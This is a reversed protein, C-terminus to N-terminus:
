ATVFPYATLSDLNEEPPKEAHFPLNVRFTSGEGPQSEVEVHGGHAEVIEKVLALGLGSGGYHRTMSGDIQYFRDLVRDLKDPPIGIGTDRVELIATQHEQRLSVAIEGGAPTFKLANGLLNDLVRHLHLPDGQLVPLNQDLDAHLVLGAERAVVQFDDLMDSVLEVLNLPKRVPKRTEVELIANIDDVLKTLMRMRRALIQMPEQQQPQLEGLEGSELLEVYGRVIALPTRLEHSVNQIFEDKLQALERQQKLARAMEAARREEEAFFRANEVANVCQQALAQIFDIEHPEFSRPEQQWLVIGGIVEQDRIMPVVLIASAGEVAMIQSTIEDATVSIHSVQVPQRAAISEGIAGEGVRVGRANFRRVPEAEIGDAAVLYLRGDARFGIVGSADARSLERAHRAISDFVRALNSVSTVERGVRTITALEDARRRLDANLLAQAVLDGMQSAFTIEDPYWARKTDDHQHSVVGVVKGHVRIPAEISARVGEALWYELPLRQTRTDIEINATAIVRGARLAAMFRPYSETVIAHRESHNEETGEATLCRLEEGDHSLIWIHVRHIELTDKAARLIVKLAEDFDGQAIAPHTILHLLMTHQRQMREVLQIREHEVQKRATIDEEIIVYHTVQGADDRVPSVSIAIWYVTGDERRSALDGHWEQHNRLSRDLEDLVMAPVKKGQLVTVKAGLVELARYGTLAEFKPNVYEIRGETDTIVVAVPSQEVALSLKRLQDEARRRAARVRAETLEREVAPVLRKLNDKMVYDHSGCKMADVAIDEGITGSVLVFPLDLGSAKVVRLADLGSFSPMAYDSVVIDWTESRLAEELADATQVRHYTLDFGGRRLARAILLADDEQDEILLVRLTTKM